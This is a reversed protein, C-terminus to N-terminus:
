ISNKLTGLQEKLGIFTVQGDSNSILLELSEEMEYHNKKEFNLFEVLKKLDIKEVVKDLKQLLHIEL